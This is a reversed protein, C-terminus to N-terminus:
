NAGPLVFKSFQMVSGLVCLFVVIRTFMKFLFIATWLIVDLSGSM